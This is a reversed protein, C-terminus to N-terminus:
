TLMAVRYMSSFLEGIATVDITSLNLVVDTQLSGSIVGVQVALEGASENTSYPSGLFGIVANLEAIVYDCYPLTRSRCQVTNNLVNNSKGISSSICHLLRIFCVLRVLTM